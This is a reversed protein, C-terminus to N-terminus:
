GKELCAELYTSSSQFMQIKNAITKAVIPKIKLRENQKMLLYILILWGFVVKFVFFMNSQKLIQYNKQKGALIYRLFSTGTALLSLVHIFGPVLIM